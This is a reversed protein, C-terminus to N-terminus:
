RSLQGLDPLVVWDGLRIEKAPVPVLQATLLHPDRVEIVPEAAHEIEQETRLQGHQCFVGPREGPRRPLNPNWRWLSGTRDLLTRPIVDVAAPRDAPSTM